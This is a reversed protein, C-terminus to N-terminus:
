SDWKMTPDFKCCCSCCTNLFQTFELTQDHRRGLHCGSLHCLRALLRWCLLAPSSGYRTDDAHTDKPVKRHLHKSGLFHSIRIEKGVIEEALALVQYTKLDEDKNLDTNHTLPLTIKWNKHQHLNFMLSKVFCYLEKFIFKLKYFWSHAHIYHMQWEQTHLNDPFFNLVLHSTKVGVLWVKGGVNVCQDCKQLIEVRM